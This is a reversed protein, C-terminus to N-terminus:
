FNATIILEDYKGRATSSGALVSHRTATRISFIGQYLNRVSEHAANTLVIMAGRGAAASLSDCLREQDGWSFISENYKIFGNLNHKVTYPPDAFILDGDDAEAITQEFDQCHIQAGSLVDSCAFWDDSPLEVATKTGIPVNFEGKLNVRYLGNWCTRNLYILRAAVQVQDAPKKSRISYYQEVSHGESYERLADTIDQPNDRVCRYTEILESNLDSLIAREPQTAFFIAGSGM